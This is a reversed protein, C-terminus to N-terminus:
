QIIIQGVNVVCVIGWGSPASKTKDGPSDLTDSLIKYAPESSTNDSNQKILTIAIHKVEILDPTPVPTKEKRSCSVFLVALFLVFLFKKM